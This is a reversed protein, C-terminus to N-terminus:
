QQKTKEMLFHWFLYMKALHDLQNINSTECCFDLLTKHKWHLAVGTLFIQQILKMKDRSDFFKM